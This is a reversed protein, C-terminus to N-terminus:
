KYLLNLVMLIVIGILFVLITEKLQPNKNLFDIMKNKSYKQRIYQQCHPCTEIHEIMNYCKNNLEETSTQINPTSIPNKSREQRFYEVNKSVFQQDPWAEQISCYM